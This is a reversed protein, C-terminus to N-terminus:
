HALSYCCGSLIKAFYPFARKDWKRGNEGVTEKIVYNLLIKLCLSDKLYVNAEYSPISQQLFLVTRDAVSWFTYKHVKNQFSESPVPEVNDRM